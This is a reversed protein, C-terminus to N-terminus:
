STMTPNLVDISEKFDFTVELEDEVAYTRKVKGSMNHIQRMGLYTSGSEYSGGMIVHVTRVM